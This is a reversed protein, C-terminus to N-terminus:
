GELGVATVSCSKVGDIRETSTYFDLEGERNGPSIAECEFVYVHQKPSISSLCHLRQPCTSEAWSIFQSVTQCRVCVCVCVCICAVKIWSGSLDSLLKKVLANAKAKTKTVIYGSIDLMFAIDLIQQRAQSVLLLDNLHGSEYM